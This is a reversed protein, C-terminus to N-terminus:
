MNISSSCSALVASKDCHKVAQWNGISYMDTGFINFHLPPRVGVLPTGVYRSIEVGEHSAQRLM